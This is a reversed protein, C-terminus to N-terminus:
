DPVALLAYKRPTAFGSATTGQNVVLASAMNAVSFFHFTEFFLENEDNFVIAEDGQGDLFKTPQRPVGLEKRSSAILGDRRKFVRHPKARNQGIDPRGALAGAPVRV